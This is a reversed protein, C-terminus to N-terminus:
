GQYKQKNSQKMKTSEQQNVFEKGRKYGENIHSSPIEFKLSQTSDNVDNSDVESPLFWWKYEDSPKEIVGFRVSVIM